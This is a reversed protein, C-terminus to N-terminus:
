CITEGVKKGNLQRLFSKLIVNPKPPERLPDTEPKAFPYGVHVMGCSGVLARLQVDGTKWFFNADVEGDKSIFRYAIEPNGTDYLSSLVKFDSEKYNLKHNKKLCKGAFDVESKKCKNEM